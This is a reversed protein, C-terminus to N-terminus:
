CGPKAPSPQLQSKVNSQQPPKVGFSSVPNVIPAPHGHQNFESSSSPPPKHRDVDARSKPAEQKPQLLVARSNAVKPVESPAKEVQVASPQPPIPVRTPSPKVEQSSPQMKRKEGEQIQQFTKRLTSDGGIVM